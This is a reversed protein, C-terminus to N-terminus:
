KAAPTRRPTPTSSANLDLKVARVLAKNRTGDPLEDGVPDRMVNFGAFINVVSRDRLRTSDYDRIWRMALGNYTQGAGFSAGDPIAPARTAVAFASPVFAYAAEPDIVESTVVTFGAIRGLTAEQLASVAASEGTSDLRNFRESLLIKEEVDSGVLLTRNGKPVFSRNLTKRAAVVSRYPDKDDLPLTAAYPASEILAAVNDDIAEAIARVQPTLIKEGFDAIDLTLEEDTVAVASYFDRNLKVDIADEHLEDLVISEARDNRWAYERAKLRAPIRITVTDNKAGTFNFDGDTWVLSALVLDRELLGLATSAIVEPKLFTNAM